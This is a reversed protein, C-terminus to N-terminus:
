KHRWDMKNAALALTLVSFVLLWCVDVILEGTCPGLLTQRLASAAYTSPSIHGLTILVAPLHDPPIVVPGLSLLLGTVLLAIAAGSEPTRVSTGIIAGVGTMATACLPIVIIVLPSIALHVNLYFVGIITSVLLSPLSMAFFCMVMALLLVHRRIPLTAFYDLSGQIRLYILHGQVNELTGFVLSLVINGILVYSRAVNGTAFVGFALMSLIPTLTGAVLLSRWAWRWNTIEILALNILQVLLPQKKLPTPQM